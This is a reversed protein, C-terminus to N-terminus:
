SNTAPFSSLNNYYSFETLSSSMIRTLDILFLDFSYTFPRFVMNDIRMYNSQVLYRRILPDIYHLFGDIDKMM